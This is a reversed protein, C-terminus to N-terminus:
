ANHILFLYGQKWGWGGTKNGAGGVLRTELGVWWDQKWGWGGTKNGAGGVLRTELGVWWDQKWGWGGTKNGAGGLKGNNVTGFLIYSTQM